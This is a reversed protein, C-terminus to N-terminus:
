GIKSKDTLAKREGKNTTIAILSILEPESELKNLNRHYLAITLVGIM